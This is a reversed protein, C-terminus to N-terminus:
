GLLSWLHREVDKDALFTHCASVLVVPIVHLATFQFTTRRRFTYIDMVLLFDYDFSVSSYSM